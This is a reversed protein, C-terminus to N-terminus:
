FFNIKEKLDLSNEAFHLLNVYSTEESLLLFIKDLKDESIVNDGTRLFTFDYFFPLIFFIGIISFLALIKRDFIKKFGYTFFYLYCFSCFKMELYIPM